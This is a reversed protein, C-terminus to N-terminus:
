FRVKNTLVAIIVLINGICGVMTLMALVILYPVAVYPNNEVFNRTVKIEISESGTVTGNTDNAYFVAEEAFIYKLDM